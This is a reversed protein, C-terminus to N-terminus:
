VNQIGGIGLSFTRWNYAGRGHVAPKKKQRVAPPQPPPLPQIRAGMYRLTKRKTLADKVKFEVKRKEQVQTDYFEKEGVCMAYGTSTTSAQDWMAVKPQRQSVPAEAEGQDAALDGESEASVDELALFAESLIETGTETYNGRGQIPKLKVPQNTSVLHNLKMQAARAAPSNIVDAVSKGPFLRSVISLVDENTPALILGMLLDDRAGATDEMMYRSRSRSIYYQGVQPNYQLALTFKDEAEKYNKEQYQEVGFENHVVSIRAKVATDLPDLELAQHYDQLAFTLESQKFFCDGRNVYLSKESKEGKIAKNLLIIAEEFFGKGFCEVAFDNYTLLLQRQSNIYVPDEEQHDCKDLALLFDDIAANFDHLKRQLAGRLVHFDAVSPNTEIAISIKQLAERHKGAINLQMSQLKSANARKVIAAMIAKAEEHEPDLVIADKVDYYCLTTNRFMEHLRARMIYLDPNHHDTELRKNVLALCEGHRQLAALCTISRIHYGVNEPVMESARSFAELAEPYLRQDFLTQGQFYYLFALRSYYTQNRSELLCAKKYNLIASQFDCLQIYAEAREVYFLPDDTKLNIAKNLCTIIGLLDNEKKVEMAREYHEYARKTVIQVLGVKRLRGGGQWNETSFLSKQSRQRAADIAEEDVATAFVGASQESLTTGEATTTRGEDENEMDQEENEDVDDEEPTHQDEGAGSFSEPKEARSGLSDDVTQESHSDEEAIAILAETQSKIGTNNKNFTHELVPYFQHINVEGPDRHYDEVDAEHELPSQTSDRGGFFSDYESTEATDVTGSRNSTFPTTSALKNSVPSIEGDEALAADLKDSSEVSNPKSTM